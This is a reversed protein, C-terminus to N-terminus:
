EHRAEESLEVLVGGTSSPHVFAVHCGHAGKVPTENILRVGKNKLELLLKDINKVRLCIHHIGVGRKSIFKAIPSASDTAELLEINATNQLPLMGVKVKQDAVIEPHSDETFGLAKWFPYASALSDVAIGIHDIEIQPKSM